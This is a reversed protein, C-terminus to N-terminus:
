VPIHLAKWRGTGAECARHFNIHNTIHEPWENPAFMFLKSKTKAAQLAKFHFTVAMPVGYLETVSAACEYDQLPGLKDLLETTSVLTPEFCVIQPGDLASLLAWDNSAAPLTKLMSHVDAIFSEPTDCSSVWNAMTSM